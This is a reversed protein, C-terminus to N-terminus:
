LVESRVFAQQLFSKTGRHGFLHVLDEALLDHFVATRLIFQTAATAERAAQDVTRQVHDHRGIVLPPDDFVVGCGAQFEAIFGFLDQAPIRAHEVCIARFEFPDLGFQQVVSRECSLDLVDGLVPAHEGAEQGGGAQEVFLAPQLAGHAHAPVDGEGLAVLLREFRALLTVAVEELVGHVQDLAHLRVPAELVHVTRPLFGKPVVVRARVTQRDPIHHMRFVQGFRLLEEMGQQSPLARTGQARDEHAARAVLDMHDAVAGYAHLVPADRGYPANEPVDRAHVLRLLANLLVHGLQLREELARLVHEPRHVLPDREGAEVRAIRGHDLAEITSRGLHVRVKALGSFPERAVRVVREPLPLVGIGEGAPGHAEFRVEDVPATPPNAVLDEEAGHEVRLALDGLDEADAVLDRLLLLCLVQRALLASSQLGDEVACRVHHDPREVALEPDGCAVLVELGGGLTREPEVQADAVREELKHGAAHGALSGFPEHRLVLVGEFPKGLM